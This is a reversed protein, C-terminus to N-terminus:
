LNEPTIEEDIEPPTSGGATWTFGKEVRFWYVAHIRKRGNKTYFFTQGKKVSVLPEYFHSPLNRLKLMLAFFAQEGSVEGSLGLDAKSLVVRDSHHHCGEGLWYTFYPQASSTFLAEGNFSDAVAIAYGQLYESQSFEAGLTSAPTGVELVDTFRYESAKPYFVAGEEFSPATIFENAEILSIAQEFEPIRFENM